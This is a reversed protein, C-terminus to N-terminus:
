ARPPKTKWLRVIFRSEEEILDPETGNHERMSSILKNRIGMGQHEIYQYDRIIDKLLKNRTVRNGEKIKEVTAGNPLKGPSIVELRDSYLSVEIDTGAITYDRHVVANVIAERIASEPLEKKNTRVAGNLRAESRINRMVFDQARDIVGKEIIQQDTTRSSVLPGRIIENDIRNYDKEEGPYATATIGAQPLRRNPNKGFLLLGAATALLEDEHETLIDLNTLIKSWSEQEDLSPADRKLIVIFYNEVRDLDLSCINTHPVPKIEYRAIQATKHLRWIEERTAVRSTTGSRFFATWDNGVKAEYPKEFLDSHLNIVVVEKDEDLVVTRWDLAAAPRVNNHAINVAWTEIERLSRTLGSIKGDDEVGLLIKGGNHNLLASMEKALQKPCVDDRKFELSSSEGNLILERLIRENM